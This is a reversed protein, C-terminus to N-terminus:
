FYHKWYDQRSGGLPAIGVTYAGSRSCSAECSGESREPDQEAEQRVYNTVIWSYIERYNVGGNVFFEAFIDCNHTCVGKITIHTVV